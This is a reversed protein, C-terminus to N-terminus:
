EEDIGGTFKEKLKDEGLIVPKFAKGAKPKTTLGVILIGIIVGGLQLAAGMSNEKAGEMSDGEPGDGGDGDGDGGFRGGENQGGESRSENEHGYEDGEGFRDLGIAGVVILEIAVGILILRKRDLSKIKEIWEELM